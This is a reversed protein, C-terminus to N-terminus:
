FNHGCGSLPLKAGHIGGQLIPPEWFKILSRYKLLVCKRANTQKDFHLVFNGQMKPVELFINKIFRDLSSAAIVEKKDKTLLPTINDNLIYCLHHM